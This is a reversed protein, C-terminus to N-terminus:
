LKHRNTTRHKTHTLAKSKVFYDKMQGRMSNAARRLSNMIAVLNAETEFSAQESALLANAM